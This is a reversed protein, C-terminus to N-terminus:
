DVICQPMKPHPVTSFGHSRQQQPRQAGKWGGVREGACDGGACCRPVQLDGLLKPAPNILHSYDSSHMVSHRAAPAATSMHLSAAVAALVASGQQELLSQGSSRVEVAQRVGKREQPVDQRLHHHGQHACRTSCHGVCAPARRQVSWSLSTHWCVFLSRKGVCIALWSICM